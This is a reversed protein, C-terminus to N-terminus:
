INILKPTMTIMSEGNGLQGYFNYGWSWLKGRLDIGMSHYDGAFIECFTKNSGSIDVPTRKGFSTSNDGLQGYYNFGWSWVKGRFDLGLSHASGASIQCFTKNTGLIAIPTSKNVTTNDGLQGQSNFGWSWSKGRLDIGLSHGYGSSIKCFTKDGGQISVPTNRSTVTNDGLQGYLNYGWSWVKGRFDLGLSHAYDGASIQCFTKNTGLIAIPTSKNVTTNDGLQGSSNYGWSWSKGRLDIGLSHGYGSSIKCFTLNGCVAIPTSKNNSSNDGLQGTNNLGWCWLKGRFDLGISYYRGASIQCFTKNAGLVTVPTKESILTNDGLQGYLNNGWSWTKGRFDIGISYGDGGSIQCFTKNTGLIVIPTSKNPTSILQGYNNYGWGWLKGRFDIGLSHNIRASIQCFTKNGYVAVPTTKSSITSDGLQGYYNYGWSWL